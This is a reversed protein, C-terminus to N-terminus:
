GPNNMGGATSLTNKTLSPNITRRARVAGKGGDARHGIPPINISNGNTLFARGRM